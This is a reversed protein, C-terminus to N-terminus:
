PIAVSVDGKPAPIPQNLEYALAASTGTVAIAGGVGAWFYWQNWVPPVISVRSKKGSDEPFLHARFHIAGKTPVNMRTSTSMGAPTTVILNYIGKEIKGMSVKKGYGVEIGDISVIANKDNTSITVDAGYKSLKTKIIGKNGDTNDMKRFSSAYGKAHLFVSHTDLDLGEMNYPTTGISSKLTGMFINAGPPTTEIRALGASSDLDTYLYLNQGPSFILSGSKEEHGLASMTWTHEGPPLATLRIPLSQPEKGDIQVMAKPASSAFEVTGGGRSLVGKLNQTMDATIRVRRVFPDHGDAVIRILHKGPSLDIQLPTSGVIKHDVYVTSLLTSTVSLTGTPAAEEKTVESDSTSATTEQPPPTAPDQAWAFSGLILWLSHAFM